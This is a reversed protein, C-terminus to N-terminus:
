KVSVCIHIVKFGPLGCCMSGAGGAELSLELVLQGLLGSAGLRFLLDEELGELVEVQVVVAGNLGILEGLGDLLNADLDGGLLYTGM